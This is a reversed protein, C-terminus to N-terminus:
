VLLQREGDSHYDQRYNKYETYWAQPKHQMNGTHIFIKSDITSSKM